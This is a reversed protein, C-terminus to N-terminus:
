AVRPLMGVYPPVKHREVDAIVDMFMQQWDSALRDWGLNALAYERASKALAERRPDNTLLDCVEAVFRNRYDAAAANGDLLVGHQVTEGLAALRTAVPVCGGAQAEMASICSTETFSTPYGWVSAESFAKALELQNTRGIYKAGPTDDIRKRLNAILEKDVASNYVNAASQWSEFGYYIGLETEPVRARIQPMVDLLTDLGRNPSSSFILKKGIKTPPAAFRSTDIGNRTVIMTDPHLFQYQSMFFDRHWQSLTLVRDLKLFATHLEPGGQGCHIDHVWLFKARAKINQELMVQWQRSTIFVDCVVDKMKGFHLYEVGDYIGDMHPCDIYCTVKHGLKALERAMCVVATESGGIGTTNPSNGNWWEWASGTWIVIDLGTTLTAKPTPVWRAAGQVLPHQLIPGPLAQLFTRGRDFDSHRVTDWIQLAYQALVDTTPATSPADIPITVLALTPVPVVVPTPEPALSAEYIRKNYALNTDTPVVALGADCSVIADKIRGAAGLAVNFILHPRYTRELPNYPLVSAPNGLAFGQETWKICQNWDKQAYAVRALGFFGEPNLRDDITAVSFAEYAKQTEGRSEYLDGLALRATAREEPWGSKGVYETYLKIALDPRLYRAENGFYFLTRADINEKTEAYFKALIKYNRNPVVPGVREHRRHRINVTSNDVRNNAPILVEHVPNVWNIDANRRIVRERMLRCNVNGAADVSYDYNLQTVDIRSSQMTGAVLGLNEAGIVEDDADLWMIFEQTAKSFSFNRANAFHGLCFQGSYPGPADYKQGYEENDLYFSDPHTVHNFDYVEAGLDRAIEATRDTSGTNVVVVQAVHDRVSRLCRELVSEENWAIMCLSIPARSSM